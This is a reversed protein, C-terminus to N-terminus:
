LHMSTGENGVEDHRGKNCVTQNQRSEDGQGEEENGGGINNIGLFEMPVADVKKPAQTVKTTDSM